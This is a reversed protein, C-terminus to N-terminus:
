NFQGRAPPHTVKAELAEDFDEETEPINRLISSLLNDFIVNPDDCAAYSLKTANATLCAAICGANIDEDLLKCVVKHISKWTKEQQTKRKDYAGDPM